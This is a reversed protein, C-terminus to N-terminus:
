NILINTVKLELHSPIWIFELSVPVENIVCLIKDMLIPRCKSHETKTATLVSLSDSFIVVNQKDESAVCYGKLWLLAM